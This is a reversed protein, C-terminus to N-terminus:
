EIKPLRFTTKLREFKAKECETYMYTKYSGFLDKKLRYFLKNEEEMLKKVEEKPLQLKRAIDYYKSELFVDIDEEEIYVENKVVHTPVIDEWDTINEWRLKLLDKVEKIEEM